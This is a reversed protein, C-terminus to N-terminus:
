SGLDTWTWHVREGPAVPFRDAARDGEVTEGEREVAYTWGASGSARYGGISEVYLGLGPYRKTTVEFGGQRSAEVLASHATGNELNVTGDYLSGEPGVVRVGVEGAGLAADDLRWAQAALALGALLLATLALLAATTRRDRERSM